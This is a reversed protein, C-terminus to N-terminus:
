RLGIQRNNHWSVCVGATLLPFVRDDLQYGPPSERLSIRICDYRANKERTKKKGNPQWISHTIPRKTRAPHQSSRVYFVRRVRKQNGTNVARRDPGKGPAWRSLPGMPPSPCHVSRIPAVSVCTVARCGDETPCCYGFIRTFSLQNEKGALTQERNLARRERVFGPDYFHEPEEPFGPLGGGRTGSHFPAM